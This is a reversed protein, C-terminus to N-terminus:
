FGNLGLQLAWNKENKMVRNQKVEHMGWGVVDGLGFFFFLM